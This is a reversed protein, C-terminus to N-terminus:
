REIFRRENFQKQFLVHENRIKNEHRLGRRLDRESVSYNDDVPLEPESAKANARARSQTDEIAKERNFEFAEETTVKGYVGVAYGTGGRISRGSAEVALYYIGSELFQNRIIGDKGSKGYAFKLKELKDNDQAYLTLRADSELYGLVFSYVGSDGINLKYYDILNDSGIWGDEVLLLSINGNDDPFVATEQAGQWEEGFSAGDESDIAEPDAAKDQGGEASDDNDAGAAAMIRKLYDELVSGSIESLPLAVTGTSHQIVCADNTVGIIEYNYYTDGLSTTLDDATLTTALLLFLLIKTRM